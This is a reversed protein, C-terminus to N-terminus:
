NALLSFDCQRLTTDTRNFLKLAKWGDLNVQAFIRCGDEAPKNLTTVQKNLSQLVIALQTAWVLNREKTHYRIFLEMEHALERVSVFIEDKTDSFFYKVVETLQEDTLLM